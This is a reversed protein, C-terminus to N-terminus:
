PTPTTPKVWIWWSLNWGKTDQFENIYFILPSMRNVIVRNQANTAGYTTASKSVVFNRLKIYQDRGSWTWAAIMYRVEKHMVKEKNNYISKETERFSYKDINEEDLITWKTWIWKDNREITTGWREVPELFMLITIDKVSNWWTWSTFTLQRVPVEKNAHFYYAKNQGQTWEFTNTFASPDLSLTARKDQFWNKSSNSVDTVTYKNLSQALQVDYSTQNERYVIGTIKCPSSFSVTFDGKLEEIDLQLFNTAKEWSIFKFKELKEWTQWISNVVWDKKNEYATLRMDDRWYIILNNQVMQKNDVEFDALYWRYTLLMTILIIWLIVFIVEFVM